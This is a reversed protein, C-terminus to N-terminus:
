FFKISSAMELLKDPTTDGGLITTANTSISKGDKIIWMSATQLKTTGDPMTYKFFMKLGPTGDNLTVMEESLIKFRKSGPMAKKADDMYAQSDLKADAKADAINVTFVPIKWTNPNAVHFVEDRELREPVYHDPYEVTFRYEDNKYHGPTQGPQSQPQPTSACASLMVMSLLVIGIFMLSQPLKKM